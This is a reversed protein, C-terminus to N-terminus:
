GVSDSPPLNPLPDDQAGRRVRLPTMGVHRRLVRTFHSADSFGARRGIEAITTRRFLPSRLMRLAAQVRAAILAEGFTEGFVALSRHLTRTSVHLSRAVESATVSSDTCCEAIRARIRDRLSKRQRNLGVGCGSTENAVLALLVGVHECILAAPLPGHLMSEPTLQAVFATLASAWGSNFPIRRGALGAPQPVWQRMFQDTFALHVIDYPHTLNMEMAFRTDLLVADRPYLLAKDRHNMQFPATNILLHFGHERTRSIEREGRFAEHASGRHRMIAIQGFNASRNDTFFAEPNASVIRMPTGAVKSFEETYYEFRQSPPVDETSWRQLTSATEDAM